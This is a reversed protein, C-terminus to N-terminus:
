DKEPEKKETFPEIEAQVLRERAEKVNTKYEQLEGNLKYVPIADMDEIQSDLVDIVTLLRSIFDAKVRILSNSLRTVKREYSLKRELELIRKNQPALLTESTEAFTRWVDANIKPEEQDNKKRQNFSSILGPLAAALAVLIPAAVSLIIQLNEM